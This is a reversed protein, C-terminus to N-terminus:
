DKRSQQYSSFLYHSLYVFVGATWGMMSPMQYENKVNLSGDVVNYKEWLDGSSEYNRAVVNVYKEALRKAAEFYGYKEVSCIATYHLPPWGNPHDWQFVESIDMEQCAGLGFDYEFHSLSELVKKSQEGTAIGAWLPYFTALSEVSTHRHNALDYDMFLGKSENWCYKSFLERRKGAIERWAESEGTRLIEGFYSFNEEYLFLNCNLDVPVFDTCRGEFRPTFDWGSEAEGLYHGGKLLKEERNVARVVLRNLILEDFFAVVEQEHAHHFYRNLGTTTLRKTMWFDYEKKLVRYASALWDEDRFVEYIDRVMMSLYPLQSRNLFFDQERKSRIWIEGSGL